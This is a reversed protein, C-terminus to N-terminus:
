VYSVSNYPEVEEPGLEILARLFSENRSPLAANGLIRIAPVAGVGSRQELTGDDREGFVRRFCRSVLYDRYQPPQEIPQGDDWRHFRRERRIRNGLGGDNHESDGSHGGHPQCKDDCAGDVRLDGSRTDRHRQKHRRGTHSCNAGAGPFRGRDFGASRLLSCIEHANCM